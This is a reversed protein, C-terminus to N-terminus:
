FAIIFDASVLQRTKMELTTSYITEIHRVRDLRFRLGYRDNWIVEGSLGYYTTLHWQKETAVCQPDDPCQIAELDDVTHVTGIGFQVGFRSIAQDGLAVKAPLFNFGLRGEAQVTSFDPSIKFEELLQTSLRTYNGENLNARYAAMATIGLFPTVRYEATVEPAIYSKQFPDNVTVGNGIGLVFQGAQAQSAILIGILFTAQKIALNM